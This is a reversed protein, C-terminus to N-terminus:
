KWPSALAWIWDKRWTHPLFSGLPVSINFSLNPGARNEFLPCSCKTLRNIERYGMHTQKREDWDEQYLMGYAMWELTRISSLERAWIIKCVIIKWLCHPCSSFFKWSFRRNWLMKWKYFIGRKQKRGFNRGNRTVWNDKALGGIVQSNM